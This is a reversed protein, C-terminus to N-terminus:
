PRAPPAPPLDLALEHEAGSRRYRVVVQRAGATLPFFASARVVERPGLLAPAKLGRRELEAHIAVADERDRNRRSFVYITGGVAVVPLAIISIAAGALGGSAAAAAAVIGGPLGFGWGLSRLARTNDLSQTDLTALSTTHIGAAPLASLLELSEVSLATDSENALTLRYEDWNAERVWSGPGARAIVDHLTVRLAGAHAAQLGLAPPEIVAEAAIIRSSACGALALAAALSAVAKDVTTM